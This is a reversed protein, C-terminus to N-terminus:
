QKREPRALSTEVFNVNPHAAGHGPCGPRRGVGIRDVRAALGDVLLLTGILSPALGLLWKVTETAMVTGLQGAVPGLIGGLACTPLADAPPDEPFLCRFCPAEAATFPAFVTAQGEFGQVSGSVLPRATRAAAAAVDARTAFSDSGDLVLDVAACLGDGDAATFRERHPELRAEPNLAALREAAAAVKPRGVDATTYLVQRHLNGLAVDDDDVLVLRGVGAAALYLAAPAGLGGLGVLLVAAARLREQGRGGLEPLVMQRAYRDLEGQSFRVPTV